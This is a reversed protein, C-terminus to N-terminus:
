FSLITRRVQLYYAVTTRKFSLMILFFSNLEKDIFQNWRNNSGTTMSPAEGTARHDIIQRCLLLCDRFLLLARDRPRSSGRSSPKAAWELIRAQLIGHISSGVTWPAVSLRVHSLVCAPSLPSFLVRPSTLSLLSPACDEGGSVAAQSLLSGTEPDEFYFWYLRVWQTAALTLVEGSVPCKFSRQKTGPM